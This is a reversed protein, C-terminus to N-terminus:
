KKFKHWIFFVVAALIILGIVIDVSHFYKGLSTWNDGLIKGVYALAWCWPLSGLFTYLIFKPFNMKAIGAPLSIFTRIVPLLRSVFIAIDGYRTTWKEASDIDKKTLLIYRGYKEIFPRGGYYGAAYAIVSGIVCGLAGAMSVGLMTFRGSSVLSGSFPMIIESPLPICASEIGMTAIIGAYGSKSIVDIIWQAVPQIITEFM